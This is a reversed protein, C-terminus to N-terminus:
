TVTQVLALPLNRLCGDWGETGSLGMKEAWRRRVCRKAEERQLVSVCPVRYRARHAAAVDGNSICLAYLLCDYWGCSVGVEKVGRERVKKKSVNKVGEVSM